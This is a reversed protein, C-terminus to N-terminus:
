TTFTLIKESIGDLISLCYELPINPKFNVNKIKKTFFISQFLRGLVHLGNKCGKQGRLIGGEDGSLGQSHVTAPADAYGADLKSVPFKLPQQPQPHYGLQM